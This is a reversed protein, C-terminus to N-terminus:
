RLRQLSRVDIVPEDKPYTTTSLPLEDVIPRPNQPSLRGEERLILIVFPELTFSQTSSPLGFEDGLVLNTMGGFHGTNVFGVHSPEAPLAAVQSRIMRLETTQPVVFLTTVNRAAVFAGTVVVATSMVLALSEAVTLTRASVRPELLDRITLWVGLVGLCAYLAILASISVEPRFTVSNEAAVLNPLFCFPILLLGIGSYLWSTNSCQRRLLLVIGGAAVTAVVAALWHSPTIDFLNLSRYLPLEFFWRVKGVVDHTLSSREANPASKGVIHIALKTALFAFVLAVFAVGVHTRVLRFARGADPAAGVLAIALFVVFFMAAPQYILLGTLLLGISGVIRDIVLNPPADIAAVALLSAGGGLVSAYPANFLVTWSGYVQFAPLTCVLVAILAAPAPKIRSRVLSWHMLLALLVIGVVGFLRVYRLNDITGATSFFLQDLLGAFPRGSVAVTDAISNGFQPSSGLHDAIFLIPYDDTFAYPVIIVPLFIAFIAIGIAVPIAGADSLYARVGPTHSEPVRFKAAVALDEDGRVTTTNPPTSM